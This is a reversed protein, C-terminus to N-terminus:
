LQSVSLNKPLVRYTHFLLSVSFSETCQLLLYATQKVREEQEAKGAKTKKRIQNNNAEKRELEM